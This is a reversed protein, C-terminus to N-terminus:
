DKKLLRVGINSIQSGGVILIGAFISWAILNLLQNISTAPLLGKLQEGIMQRAQDQINQSGKGTPLKVEEKPTTFIEPAATKSTFINYSSYLSWFIIALGAILLLLGFIKIFNM